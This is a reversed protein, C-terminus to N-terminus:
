FHMLIDHQPPTCGERHRYVESVQLLTDAHWPLNSLIRWFQEPDLIRSQQCLYGNIILIHEGGSMVARVFARTVSRYRQSYDVTWWRENQILFKIRMEKEELEPNNLLRISLGERQSASWWTPQPKTLNSKLGQIAARGGRSKRM